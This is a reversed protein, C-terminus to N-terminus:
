RDDAQAGEPFRAEGTKQSSATFDDYAMDPPQRGASDYLEPNAGILLLYDVLDCSGWLEALHLPTTGFVPDTVNPDCTVEGPSSSSPCCLKRVEQLLRSSVFDIM